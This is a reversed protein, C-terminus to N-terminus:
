KSSLFIEKRETNIRTIRVAEKEVSPDLFIPSAIDITRFLLKGTSASLWSSYGSSILFNDALLPITSGVNSLLFDDKPASKVKSSSICFFNPASTSADISKLSRQLCRMVVTEYTKCRSVYEISSFTMTSFVRARQVPHTKCSALSNSSNMLQFFGLSSELMLSVFSKKNAPSSNQGTSFILISKWLM